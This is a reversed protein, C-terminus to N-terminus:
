SRRAPGGPLYSTVDRVFQERDAALVDVPIITAGGDRLRLILCQAGAVTDTVIEEVDAWRAQRVGAGRVFRVQYGDESLRVVYTKKTLYWGISFLGVVTVLVAASLVLISTAFLVVIATALLVLFAFGVIVMGLLRAAVHPALRYETPM